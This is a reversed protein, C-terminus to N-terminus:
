INDRLYNYMLEIDDSIESVPILAIIQDVLEESFGIGDINYLPRLVTKFDGERIDTINDLNEGVNLTPLSYLDHVQDTCNKNQLLTPSLLYNEIERRKWCLLYTLTNNNNFKKISNFKPNINIFLDDQIQNNPFEDKDCILFIKETVIDKNLTHKRFEEIFSLKEVGIVQNVNNYGSHKSIPLCQDLITLVQEGLKKTALKKFITWDNIHDILVPFKIRSLIDFQYKKHGVIESLRKSLETFTLDDKIKGDEILKINEINNQLISDSIHTTTIVTSQCNNLQNWLKKLNQFYLHSDIEDFLFITEPGDFLDILAYTSLIQYEGDSLQKFEIGNKFKLKFEFLESNSLWGNTALAWFSFLKNIDKHTFVQFAKRSDFTLWRKILNDNNQFDFNIQFSDIIKELTQHFETNRLLNEQFEYGENEKDNTGLEEQEIEKKILSAYYKKIRFRFELRSSVDEKLSNTEIYNNDTLYKRVLGDKKFTSAWFILLRTWQTNFYFSKIPEGRERLYRRNTKKHENFLESFLENQGSSFCIVRYDDHDLYKKFIAELISSKGSGNGGIFTTVSNNVDLTQPTDVLKSQFEITAM